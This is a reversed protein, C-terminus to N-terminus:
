QQTAKVFEEMKEYAKGSNILEEAKKIGEEMTSLKATNMSDEATNLEGNKDFYRFIYNRPNSKM